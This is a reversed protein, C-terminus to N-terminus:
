NQVCHKDKKAAVRRAKEMLYTHSVGAVYEQYASASVEDIIDQTVGSGQLFVSLRKLDPFTKYGSTYQQGIKKGQQYTSLVEVIWYGNKHVLNYENNLKM